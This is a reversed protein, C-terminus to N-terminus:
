NKAPLAPLHLHFALPRDGTNPQALLLWDGPEPNRWHLQSADERAELVIARGMPPDVLVAFALHVPAHHHGEADLADFKLDLPATPMRQAPLLTLEVHEDATQARMSLSSLGPGLLQPLNGTVSVPSIVAHLAGAQPRFVAILAHDGGGPPAFTLSRADAGERVPARASAVFAHRLDRAVLFGVMEADGIRDLAGLPHGAPDLATTYISVPVGARPQPLPQGNADIFGTSLQFGDASRSSPGAYAPTAAEPEAVATAANAM